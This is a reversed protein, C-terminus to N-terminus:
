AGVFADKLAERVVALGAGPDGKGLHVRLVRRGAEQLARYDGVSQAAILEGFTYDTEPVDADEFPADVIQLVQVGPPGGKHLQGTSHLFRPGFGVTAARGTAESLTAALEDLAARTGASPAVYAQVSVYDDADGDRMWDRVAGTLAERDDASIAEIQEGDGGPHQMAEKALRKAAEVNPQNFPHIGLAVGAAATAVEWRFMERALDARDTLRIRVVPHGASELADLQQQTAEDDDGDLQFHVFLRDDAYREADSVLSGAGVASDVPVIGTDDAVASPLVPPGFGVASDVPLIGTGDKGTSEALLQELWAPFAELAPSTTFTVKDRGAQQAEALVAGLRLGANESAPREAGSAEAMRRARGLLAHLDVGALAAPVLGFHTLAAYRGGVDPTTTFVQRFGREAGLEALETGPDTVAAFHEGPAGTQASVKDWFYRFFSRTETTTGSKSAIVFLTRELSLRETLARVADPHTSDLATLRPYNGARRGNAGEDDFVAGFVEPALSSGGMGCVVVDDFEDKVADASRMLAGAEEDMLMPLGLWGLRDSIEPTGEEAWLTVDREWLRAAFDEAQWASLRREVADELGGGLAYRASPTEEAFRARKEEIAGLLEDFPDSFKEIGEEQVDRTIQGLDIDYDPLAKLIERARGLDDEVTQGRVEGHDRFAELTAPPITNVTQAGVLEEVYRVDSYADNKTSTSAWLPRQALAGQERLDAFRDKEQFIEKFRQYVLKANAIAVSGGDFGPTEEGNERMEELQADVKRSIRSIFFSAVSHIGSVGAGEKARRELGRLYAEATREYDTMSFMLTINVNIGESILQEIAPLGEETAPVKIMVNPRGVSKWLRRAEEITGDTDKALHPAVELSVLGDSGGTAVAEDYVPRLLDCARRIEEVALTEYLAAAGAAPRAEVLAKLDGDYAGTEGIAEQFISPNSTMGRLRDERILAQLEGSTLLERRIYDLWLSQDEGRLRATRNM